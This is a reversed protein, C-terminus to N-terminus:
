RGERPPCLSQITTPGNGGPTFVLIASPFPASNPSEGFKLRGRILRIESGRMAYDHWWATDTRAAVLMVVCDAWTTQPGKGAGYVSEFAKRVWQGTARGYPPNIWVRGTWPQRLADDAETYYHPCLANEPSAAADLTFHFEADLQDFLWRPTTWDQKASSFLTHTNM